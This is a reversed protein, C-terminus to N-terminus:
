VAGQYLRGPRQDKRSAPWRLAELRAALQTQQATLLATLARTKQNEARERTICALLLEPPMGIIQFFTVLDRWHPEGKDPAEPAKPRADVTGTDQKKGATRSKRLTLDNRLKAM